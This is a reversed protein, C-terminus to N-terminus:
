HCVNMMWLAKDNRPCLNGVVVRMVKRVILVVHALQCMAKHVQIQGGGGGGWLYKYPCSHNLQMLM